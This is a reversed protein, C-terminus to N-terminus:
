KLHPLTIVFMLGIFLWVRKGHVFFEENCCHPGEDDNCTVSFLVFYTHVRCNGNVDYLSAPLTGDFFSPERTVDTNLSHSSDNIRISSPNDSDLLKVQFLSTQGAFFFCFCFQVIEKCTQLLDLNTHRSIDNYCSTASFCKKQKDIFNVFVNQFYFLDGINKLQMKKM